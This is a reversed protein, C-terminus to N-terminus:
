PDRRIESRGIGAVKPCIDARFQWILGAPSFSQTSPFRECVIVIAANRSCAGIRAIRNAQPSGNQPSRIRWSIPWWRKEQKNFHGSRDIYITDAIDDFHKGFSGRSKLMDARKEIM